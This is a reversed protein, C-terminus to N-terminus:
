SSLAPTKRAPIMPLFARIQSLIGPVDLKLLKLVHDRGGNDFVYRDHIGIRKLPMLIDNDAFSEAVASGIGGSLFQEEVVVVMKYRSVISKLVKHNLPKIKFIDAVGINVGEKALTERVQRVRQMLYGNTIVLLDDGKDIECIGEELFKTEGPKYIDPLFKRDLRVYRFAPKTYTIKAAEITSQTDTPSLIEINGLTRMASVDETAYHTPGADDYSYGAGVGLVTVPLNMTALAVKIQELCRYTVFPIMAYVYPIKGNLALGAAVDIMNQESIGVHIFQNSLVDRFKDLAMAGFDASLFFINPNKSAADYIEDVFVDRPLKNVPKDSM